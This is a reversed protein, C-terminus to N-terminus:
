FSKSLVVEFLNSQSANAAATANSQNWNQYQASVASTKSLAYSVGFSAGSFTSDSATTGSYQRQAWNAGVTVAGFPVAVSVIADTRNGGAYLAEQDFGGGVKAMGFDYSVAGRVRSKFGLPQADWNAVMLEGALKGAAYGATVSTQRQTAASGTAGVGLGAEAGLNASVEAHGFTLTFASTLPVAVTVTDVHSRASTIRGDWGNIPSGGVNAMGNGIYDGVLVSAIGVRYASTALSMSTDGGIVSGRRVTDFGQNATLKMGGGLDESAGFNLTATDVGLGSSQAGTSATGSAYGMAVSGTIAVQAFSAGSAALVALAVLTKKMHIERYLNFM